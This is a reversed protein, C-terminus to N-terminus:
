DLMMVENLKRARLVEGTLEHKELMMVKVYLVYDEGKIWTDGKPAILILRVIEEGAYFGRFAFEGIGPTLCRKCTSVVIITKMDFIIAFALGDGVQTM